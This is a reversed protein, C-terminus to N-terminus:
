AIEAVAIGEKNPAQYYENRSSAGLAPELFNRVEDISGAEWVCVAKRGEPSPFTHHLKLGPPINPLAAQAVKWFTGPDSVNHNVIVYM